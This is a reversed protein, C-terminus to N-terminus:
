GQFVYIHYYGYQRFGAFLKQGGQEGMGWGQERVVAAFRCREVEVEGAKLLGPFVSEPRLCCRCGCVCVVDDDADDVVVGGMDDLRTFRSVTSRTM